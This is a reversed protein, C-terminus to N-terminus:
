LSLPPPRRSRRCQTLEIIFRLCPRKQKRKQWSTLHLHQRQNICDLSVLSEAMIQTELVLKHSTKNKPRRRFLCRLRPLPLPSGARGLELDGGGLHGPGGARVGASLGFKQLFTEFLLFSALFSTSNKKKRKKTKWM